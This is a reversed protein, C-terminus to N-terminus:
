TEGRQKKDYEEALERLFNINKQRKSQQLRELDIGVIRVKGKYLGRLAIIENIPNGFYIVENHVWNCIM